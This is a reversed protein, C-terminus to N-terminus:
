GLEDVLHDGGDVSQPRGHEAAASPARRLPWLPELTQTQGSQAAAAGRRLVVAVLNIVVIVLLATALWSAVGVTQPIV